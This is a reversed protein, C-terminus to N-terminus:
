RLLQYKSVSDRFVFYRPPLEHHQSYGWTTIFINGGENTMWGYKDVSDTLILSATQKNHLTSLLWIEYPSAWMIPEHEMHAHRTHAVLKESQHQKIFNSLLAQRKQYFSKTYFPRTAYSILLMTLILAALFNHQFGNIVDWILPLGLIVALPLYLNEPYCDPTNIDVNPYCVQVLLLYLAFSVLCLSLQLHKKRRVYCYVIFVLVIPMWYYHTLCLKLFRHNSEIDLYNPFLRYFNKITSMSGRDYKTQFALTKISYFIGFVFGLSLGRRLPMDGRFFFFALTFYFPVPIIPHTFAIVCLLVAQLLLSWYEKPYASALAFFICMLALTQPFESQIWFFTHSVFLTNIILLLLAWRYQKLVAGCIWYCLLYFLVFGCSYMMMVDKLGLGLKFALLPFSQTFVAGIRYNQFAYTGKRAIEFLHYALDAFAAREQFFIIALILTIGYGLFGLHYLAKFPSAKHQEAM